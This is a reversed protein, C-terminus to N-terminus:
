LNGASKYYYARSRAAILTYVKNVLAKILGTQKGLPLQNQFTELYQITRDHETLSLAGLLKELSLPADTLSFCIDSAVGSLRYDFGLGGANVPVTSFPFGTLDDSVTIANNNLLHIHVNSLM